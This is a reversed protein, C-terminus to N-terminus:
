LVNINKKIDNLEVTLEKIAGLMISILATTEAADQPYLKTTRNKVEDSLGDLSMLEKKEIPDYYCYPDGCVECRPYEEKDHNAAKKYVAKPLSSYDLMPKGYVTLKTPHKKIALLAETDRVLTGDQLETGDDFWGLCGRDNLEKYNVENWYRSSGGLNSSGAGSPDIHNNVQLRGSENFDMYGSSGEIRNVETVSSSNMDIGGSMSISTFSGAGSFTGASITGSTSINGLQGLNANGFQVTGSASLLRLIRSDKSEIVAGTSSELQIRLGEDNTSDFFKINDSNTDMTVRNGTTGTSISSGTIAVGSINGATISGKVTFTNASDDWFMGNGGGYNGITVDGVNTGGVLVEFVKANSSDYAVIGTNADPFIQVRAGTGTASTYTGATSAVKTTPDYGATFTTSGSINIRDANISTVSTNVDNAAGGTPIYGTITLSTATANGDMDVKFPAAGFEAAGLWIGSSDARFVKSGTGIGVSNFNTNGQGLPTDVAFEQEIVDVFPKDM